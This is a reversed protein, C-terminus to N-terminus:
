CIYHTFNRLYNIIEHLSVLNDSFMYIGFQFLEITFFHTYWVYKLTYQVNTLIKTFLDKNLTAQKSSNFVINTWSFVVICINVMDQEKLELIINASLIYRWINARYPIKIQNCVTTVFLWFPICLRYSLLLFVQFSFFQLLYQSTFHKGM